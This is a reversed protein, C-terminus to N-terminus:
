QETGFSVITRHAGRTVLVRAHEVTVCTQPKFAAPIKEASQELMGPSTVVDYKGRAFTLHEISDDGATNPKVVALSWFGEDGLFKKRELFANVRVAEPSTAPLSNEYPSLPCLMTGAPWDLGTLPAITVPRLQSLQLDIPHRKEACAGLAALLVMAVVRLSRNM